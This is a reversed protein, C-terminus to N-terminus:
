GWNGKRVALRTGASFRAPDFLSVDAGDLTVRLRASLIGGKLLAEAIGPSIVLALDFYGPLRVEYARLLAILPRPFRRDGGLLASLLDTYSICCRLGRCGPWGPCCRCGWSPTACLFCTRGAARANAALPASSIFPLFLLRSYGPFRLSISRHMRWPEFPRAELSGLRLRGAEESLPVQLPPSSGCRM